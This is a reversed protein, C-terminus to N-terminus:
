AEGVTSNNLFYKMGGTTKAARSLSAGRSRAFEQAEDRTSAMGVLKGYPFSLLKSGELSTDKLFIYHM